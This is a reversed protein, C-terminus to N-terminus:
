AWESCHAHWGYNSPKFTHLSGVSLLDFMKVAPAFSTREGEGSIVSLWEERLVASALQQDIRNIQRSAVDGNM